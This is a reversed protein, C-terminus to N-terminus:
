VENYEGWALYTFQKRGAFDSQQYERTRNDAVMLGEQEGIHFTRSAPWQHPEYTNGSRDIVM